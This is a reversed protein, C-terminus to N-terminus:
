FRRMTCSVLPDFKEKAYDISMMKGIMMMVYEGAKFDALSVGDKDKSIHNYAAYWAGCEADSTPTVEGFRRKM